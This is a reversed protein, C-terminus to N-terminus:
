KKLEEQKLPLSFFFTSGAGKKGEVWINGKHRQIIEKSIYLGLGLGPFTKEKPDTVQYLREFIKKQQDKNIGIGFDQVSVIAKSGNKKLSVNIKKDQDSYKIANTILNTVVQYIRFKDAYVFTSDKGTFKIEHNKTTGQLIEVIESLLQDLMFEEKNFSLKGTQIKSVDLLSSVLEQLKETQNKMSAIIKSIKADNHNKMLSTFVELYLKISTLPTKLEHSAMNVFDDKRQDLEIESTVDHITSVAAVVKGRNKVPAANIRLFLHKGNSRIYELEENKVIEGKTLARIIPWDKYGIQREKKYVLHSKFDNGSQLDGKAERGLINELQKNGDVKGKSDIMLVGIPLQQLITQLRNQGEEAIQRAEKEQVILTDIRQKLWGIVAALFSYLVGLILTTEISTILQQGQHNRTYIIYFYYLISIFVAALGGKIGNRFAFYIIMAVNIFIIYIGVIEPNKAIQYAFIESLIVVTISAILPFIISYNRVGLFALPNLFRGLKNLM